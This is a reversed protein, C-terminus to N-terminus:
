EKFSTASDLSSSKEWLHEKPSCTRMFEQPTELLDWYVGEYHCAKAHV